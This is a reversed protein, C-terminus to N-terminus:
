DPELEVTPKTGPTRIGGRAGPTVSGWRAAFCPPLPRGGPPCLWLRLLYRRRNIPETGGIELIVTQTAPGDM